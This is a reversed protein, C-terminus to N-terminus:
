HHHGWSFLAPLSCGVIVAVLQEMSMRGQGCGTGGIVEPLIHMTASHLFTGGSFLVALAVATPTTLMPVSRLFTYTVVTAAPAAGAFTLLTHRARNWTWRCAILYTALGFAMPAKHLVMATGVVLSLAANGSLFAAGM